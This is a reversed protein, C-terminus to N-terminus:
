NEVALARVADLREQVAASLDHASQLQLDHETSAHLLERHQLGGCKNIYIPIYICLRACVHVCM